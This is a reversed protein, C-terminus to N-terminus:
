VEMKLGLVCVDDIQEFDGKWENFATNLEDKQNETPKYQLSKLLKQYPKYKFKKGKKGGFQDAFGDSFLYLMASSELEIQHNTFPKALRSYSVPQRDPLIENVEEGNVIYMPNNAGAWELKRTGKEIRLISMDMGDKSGDENDTQNLERIIRGRLEDLITAPSLIESTQNIENLFAIGLMSMFAGPVGHGTCDAVSIYLYNDKELAWYFDGSVIDKPKFLIFHPPFSKTISEETQLLAQQIRQAYNISDTIEKNKEEIVENKSKLLENDKKRNANSKLALIVVVVLLILVIVSSIIVTSKFDSEQEEIKRQKEAIALESQRQELLRQKEAHEAELNAIELEKEATEYKTEIEAVANARDLNLLSDSLTTYQKNYEHAMKWNSKLEYVKYLGKYAAKIDILSEAQKAYAESQKYYNLSQNLEKLELYMEGLNHCAVAFDRPTGVQKKYVLSREYYSIAERYEDKHAYINGINNLIMALGRVNEEAEFIAYSKNFYFEASDLQDYNRYASGINNYAYAMQKPTGVYKKLDASKKFYEVAQEYNEIYYQVGGINNYAQSQLLSDKAEKALEAAEIYREIAEEYKGLRTFCIGIQQTGTIIGEEYNMDKAQSLMQVAYSMAMDQDFKGYEKSLMRLTRYRATDTASELETELSDILQQDQAVSIFPLLCILLIWFKTM